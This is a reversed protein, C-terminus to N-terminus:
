AGRADDEPDPAIPADPAVPAGPAVPADPAPAAPAPAAAHAVPAEGEAAPAVPAEGEAAAERATTRNAEADLDPAVTAEADADSAVEQEADDLGPIPRGEVAADAMISDAEAQRDAIEAEIELRLIERRVAPDPPAIADTAPESTVSDEVYAGSLWSLIRSRPQRVPERTARLIAEHDIATVGPLAAESGSTLTAGCSPCTDLDSAPLPASCWPCRFAASGGGSTQEDAM